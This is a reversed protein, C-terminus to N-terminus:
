VQIGYKKKRREWEQLIEDKYNYPHFAVFGDTITETTRHRKMYWVQVMRALPEFFVVMHKKTKKLEPIGKIVSYPYGNPLFTRIWTNKKLLAHYTYGRAFLPKMQLLEHATYSDRRSKPFLLHDTDLLMNVCVSNPAHKENRKRRLHKTQLLCAILLRTMWLTHKKTIIFLDIDAIRDANYMALSGSVGVLEITPIRALFKAIDNAKQLKKESIKKRKQREEILM